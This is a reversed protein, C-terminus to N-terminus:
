TRRPSPSTGTKPRGLLELASLLAMQLAAHTLVDPSLSGFECHRHIRSGDPLGATVHLRGLPNGNEDPESGTVGTLAIALDAGSRELANAVMARAVAESVTTFDAIIQRQVGLLRMKAQKSYVVFGGELVKAAGPVESILHALKGATCSEATVLVKRAVIM